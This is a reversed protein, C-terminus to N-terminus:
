GKVKRKSPEVARKSPKAVGNKLSPEGSGTKMATKASSRGKNPTGSGRTVHPPPAAPKPRAPTASARQRGDTRVTPKRRGIAEAEDLLPKSASDFIDMVIGLQGNLQEEAEEFRKKTESTLSQKVKVAAELTLVMREFMEESSELIEAVLSSRSQGAVASMRRLLADTSPKLTITLRPNVAPM